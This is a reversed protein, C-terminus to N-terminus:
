GQFRILRIDFQTHQTPKSSVGPLEKGNESNLALPGSGHPMQIPAAPLGECLVLFALVFSAVMLPKM